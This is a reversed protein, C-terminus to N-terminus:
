QALIPYAGLYDCSSTISVCDLLISKYDLTRASDCIVISSLFCFKATPFALISM